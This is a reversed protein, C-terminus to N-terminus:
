RCDASPARGMVRRYVRSFHFPNAFGLAESVEGVRRGEHRLMDEARKTKIRLYLRAPAEGFLERCRNTFHRPSMGLRTALEVVTPNGTLSRNIAAMIRDRMVEDAPLRRMAASLGEPPLDRVVRWFLAELLCDQIAAAHERGGQTERRLERVLARDNHHDGRCVQMEPVAAEAFLAVVREGHAPALLRFHVVFHRQGARLHDQHEDGPKIVLIQGDRLLLEAGNLSCRYPGQEVLILEYNTHRHRPYEYDASMTLRHFDDFVPRIRVEAGTQAARRFREKVLATTVRRHSWDRAPAALACISMDKGPAAHGACGPEALICAAERCRTRGAAVIQMSRGHRRCGGDPKGQEIERWCDEAACDVTPLEAHTGAVPDLDVNQGVASEDRGDAGNIEGPTM